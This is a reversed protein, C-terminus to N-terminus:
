FREALFVHNSIRDARANWERFTAADKRSFRGISACTEDIDRSFVLARGDKLPQAFDYRPTAYSVKASLGLDSFWPTETINFHNISHLNQYFGPPGPQVTEVGGGFMLRREVIAVNLGAKALYAGLILGHHGSGIIIGDYASETVTTRCLISCVCEQVAHLEH